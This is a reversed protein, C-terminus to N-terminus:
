TSIGHGHGHGHGPQGARCSLGPYMSVHEPDSLTRRAEGRPLAAVSACGRNLQTRGLLTSLRCGYELRTVPSAAGGREEGGNEVTKRVTRCTSLGRWARYPMTPPPACVHTSAREKAEGTSWQLYTIRGRGGGGFIIRPRACYVRRGGERATKQPTRTNRHASTHSPPPERRRFEVTRKSLSFPPPPLAKVSSRISPHISPHISITRVACTGGARKRVACIEALTKPQLWAASPFRHGIRIRVRHSPSIPKKKKASQANKENRRQKRGGSGNPRTSHM